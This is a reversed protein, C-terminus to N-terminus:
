LKVFYDRMKAAMLKRREVLFAEYDIERGESAHCTEKRPQIELIDCCTM